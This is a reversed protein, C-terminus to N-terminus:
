DDIHVTSSIVNTVASKPAWFLTPEQKYAFDVPCVHVAKETESGVRYLNRAGFPRNYDKRAWSKLEVYNGTYEMIQEKEGASKGGGTPQHTIVKL